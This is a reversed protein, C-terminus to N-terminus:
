MDLSWLSCPQRGPRWQEWPELGHAELLQLETFDFFNKAVLENALIGPCLQSLPLAPDLLNWSGWIRRSANSSTVLLGQTVLVKVLEGRPPRM